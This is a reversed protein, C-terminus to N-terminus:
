PLTTVLNMRFMLPGQTYNGTSVAQSTYSTSSTVSGLVSGFSIPATKQDYSPFATGSSYVGILYYLGAQLQVSLPGSSVLGPADIAAGTVPTLVRYFNVLDASSYVVWTPTGGAQAMSMDIRVLQRATSVSVLETFMYNGIAMSKAGSGIVDTVETACGALGCAQNTAACNTGVAVPGSGDSKCTALVEGKCFMQANPCVDTKCQGADCYSDSFCHQNLTAGTGLANCRMADGNGCFLANPTCTIPQCAGSVCAQDAACASGAAAPGSGDAACTTVANGNCVPQGPQCVNGICYSGSCHASSGCLQIAYEGTGDINCSYVDNNKCYSTNATCVSNACAGNNCKQGTTACDKLTTSSFGSADCQVVLANSCSLSGAVCKYSECAATTPNCHLGYSSCYQSTSAYSGDSSCIMAVDNECYRQNPTCLQKMCKGDSCYGGASACNTGGAEPGTGDSKCVTATAGSCLAAGPTCTDNQCGPSGFSVGCHTGNSCTSQSSISTGTADCYAISSSSACYSQNAPCVTPRCAGIVCTQDVPCPSMEYGSGNSRCTGVNGAICTATDPTCSKDRCAGTDEDCRQATSCTTQLTLSLGDAACVRVSDRAENCTYVGPSCLWPQCQASDGEAVCTRSALCATDEFHDGNDACQRTGNGNPACSVLGQACADAECIGSACHRNEACHADVACERCLGASDCHQGAGCAADSACRTVCRDALCQQGTDCNADVVCQACQGSGLDCHLGGPCGAESACTVPQHCQNARCTAGPGCDANANCEVCELTGLHCVPFPGGNCDKSSQCAVVASCAGQACREGAACQSDISCAVCGLEPDCHKGSECTSDDHCAAAAPPVSAVPADSSTCGVASALTLVLCLLSLFAKM